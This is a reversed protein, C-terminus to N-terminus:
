LPIGMFADDEDDSLLLFADRRYESLLGPEDMDSGRESMDLESYAVEHASDAEGDHDVCCEDDSEDVDLYTDFISEGLSGRSHNVFVNMLNDSVRRGDAAAHMLLTMGSADQVYPDAGASLLDRAICARNVQFALFLPTQGNRDRRHIDAGSSLLIPIVSAAESRIARSLATEDDDNANNITEAAGEDLLLQVMAANDHSCAHILATDGRCDRLTVDAGLSVCELAIDLEHQQLALMLVTKGDDDPTNLDCAAGATLLVSVVGFDAKCAHLLPTIGHEDPTTVSAGSSVLAKVLDLDNRKIAPILENSASRGGTSRQRSAPVTHKPSTHNCSSPSAQKLINSANTIHSNAASLAKRLKSRRKRSYALVSDDDSSSSDGDGHLINEIIGSFGQFGDEVSVEITDRM